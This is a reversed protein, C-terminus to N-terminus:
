DKACMSSPALVKPYGKAVPCLRYPEDNITLENGKIDICSITYDFVIGTGILDFELKRSLDVLAVPCDYGECGRKDIVVYRDRDRPWSPIKYITLYNGGFTNVHDYQPIIGDIATRLTDSVDVQPELCKAQVDSTLM